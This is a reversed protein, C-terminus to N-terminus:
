PGTPAGRRRTLLLGVLLLGAGALLSAAPDIGTTPLSGEADPTDPPVPPTPPVVVEVRESDETTLTQGAPTLATVTAVNVVSPASAATLRVTCDSTETAGAALAGIAVTCAPFLPDDIVVDTLDVEGTNTVTLGFTVQQGATVSDRDVTKSLEVGSVAASATAATDVSLGGTSRSASALEATNTMGEELVSTCDVTTTSLPALTGLVRDCGPAAADAVEVSELPVTGTNVVTITWTVASGRPVDAASPTKSLSVALLGVVTPAGDAVEAGSPDAARAEFCGIVAGAAPAACQLVITANGNLVAFGTITNGELVAGPPLGSCSSLAIPSTITLASLPVSGPNRVVVDFSSAEASTRVQTPTVTIDLDSVPLSLVVDMITFGDGGTGFQFTLSTDGPALGSLPSTAIDVSANTFPTAAAYDPFPVGSPARSIAINNTAGEDNQLRTPTTNSSTTYQGFDGSDAHDGEALFYGVRAGSGAATFGTLSFNRNGGPALDQSGRYIVVRHSATTSDTPEFAGHDYVVTLSWGAFCSRGTGTWLNGVSITEETGSEGSQFLSTVDANAVYIGARGAAPPTGGDIMDPAVASIPGSAGRQVMIQRDAPIGAPVSCYIGTSNTPTAGTSVGSSGMWSLQAYVVNAGAPITLRASSSNEAGADTLQPVARTHTMDTVNNHVGGAGSHLQNCTNTGVAACELVGNGAMLFDGNVVADYAVAHPFAAAAPPAASVLTMGLVWLAVAM